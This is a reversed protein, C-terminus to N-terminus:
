GSESAITNPFRVFVLGLAWVQPVGSLLFTRPRFHRTRYGKVDFAPGTVDTGLADKMLIKV